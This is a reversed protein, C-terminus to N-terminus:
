GVVIILAVVITMGGQNDDTTPCVFTSRLRVDWQLLGVAAAVELVQLLVFVKNQEEVVKVRM